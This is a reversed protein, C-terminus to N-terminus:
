GGGRLVSPRDMARMSLYHAVVEVMAVYRPPGYVTVMNNYADYRLPYSSTDLKINTLAAELTDISFDKLRMIKMQADSINSVYIANGDYFWQLNLDAVMQDLIDRGRGRYEGAAVKGKINSAVTIATNMQTSMDKLASKIDQQLVTYVIERDLPSPRMTKAQASGLLGLFMTFVFFITIIFKFM